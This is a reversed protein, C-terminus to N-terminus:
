KPSILNLSNTNQNAISNNNYPTTKSYSNPNNHNTTTPNKTIIIRTPQEMATLTVM